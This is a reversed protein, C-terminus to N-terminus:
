NITFEVENSTGEYNASSYHLAAKWLGNSLESIPISVTKCDTSAPNQLIETDKRNSAGSPGKLMVYCSGEEVIPYSLGGRIYITSGSTNTSAILPVNKKGSAEPSTPPTIPKDSNPSLNKNDPNKALDEAQQIDSPARQSSSQSKSSVVDKEQNTYFVYAALSVGGVLLLAIATILITNRTKKIKM